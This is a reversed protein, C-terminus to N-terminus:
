YNMKILVSAAMKKHYVVSDNDGAIFKPQLQDIHICISRLNAGGLSKTAVATVVGHTEGAGRVAMIVEVFAPSWVIAKNKVTVHGVGSRFGMIESCVFDGGFSHQVFENVKMYDVVRQKVTDPSLSLLSIARNFVVSAAGASAAGILFGFKGTAYPTLQLFGSGVEYLITSAGVLFVAGGAAATKLRPPTMMGSIKAFLGEKEAKNDTAYSRGAVSVNRNHWKLAVARATSVLKSRGNLM